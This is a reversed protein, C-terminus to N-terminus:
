PLYSCNYALRTPASPGFPEAGADSAFPRSISVQCMCAIFVNRVQFNSILTKYSSVTGNPQTAKYVWCLNFSLNFSLNLRNPATAKLQHTNGITEDLQGFVVCDHIFFQVPDTAM